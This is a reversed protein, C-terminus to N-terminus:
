KLKKNKKVLKEESESESESESKSEYKKNNKKVLKKITKEESESESKSEYKKNNKKILNKDSITTINNKDVLKIEDQTLGILKYFHKEDIDKIKLKRIDPLYTFSENDLFDQGYKTYHAIIDVIKFSLMKIILELKDGLIYFKHNGTLSLTGNDIFAGAFSAKNAIIIKTNTTDPHEEIAKKVMIGDKITDFLFKFRLAYYEKAFV